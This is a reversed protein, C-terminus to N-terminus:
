RQRHSNQHERYTALFQFRAQEECKLVTGGRGRGAVEWTGVKLGIRRRRPRDPSGYGTQTAFIGTRPLRAFGARRDEFM